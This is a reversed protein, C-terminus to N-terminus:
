AGAKSVIPVVELPTAATFAQVAHFEGDGGLEAPSNGLTGAADTDRGTVLVRLTAGTTVLIIQYRVFQLNPNGSSDAGWVPTVTSAGFSQNIQPSLQKALWHEGDGSHLQAIVVTGTTAAPNDVIAQIALSDYRGLLDDLSCDTYVTVGAPVYEHFVELNFFRM